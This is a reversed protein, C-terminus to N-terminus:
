HNTDKLVELLEQYFLKPEEMLPSHASQHFTIFKKHPAQIVEYFEKALIYSVQYDYLGHFIYIPVEFTNTTQMLNDDLIDQFLLKNSYSLGLMYNFKERITYGRYLLLCKVIEMVSYERHEIGIGYKNMASSRISTIYKNSPFSADNCDFASLKKYVKQDNIQKAHELMYDYALKESKKQENLQGIGMYALYDNPYREITKMGLYTGWSHGMIYIKNQHFRKKLYETVAHTDEIMQDLTMTADDLSRRYSMGAGRQDWHCVIFEKEMRVNSAINELMLHEPSGPGGHLFLLIPLDRKEGCIFMGQKVGNIKVFTKESIANVMIGNADKLPEIKGPSVLKFVICLFLIICVIVIFIIM